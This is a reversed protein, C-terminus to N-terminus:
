SREFGVNEEVWEVSGPFDLGMVEMVLAYGDGSINCAFCRYTGKELNVTASANDESHIVCKIKTYGTPSLHPLDEAGLAELVSDIPPKENSMVADLRRRLTACVTGWV